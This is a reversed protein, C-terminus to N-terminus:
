RRHLFNESVADAVVILRPPCGFTSFKGRRAHIRSVERVSVAIPEFRSEWGDIGVNASQPWRFRAAGQTGFATFM